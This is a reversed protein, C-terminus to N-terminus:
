IKYRLLAGVGGLAELQKGADHVTSIVVVKGGSNESNTLLKEIQENKGRIMKDIILLTEVAGVEIANETESLGYVVLGDKAIEELIKEVLETEYTVRSDNVLRKIVGRKIAEQVGVMGAQGTGEQIINDFNALNKDKCFKVFEDKTFGPGIVVLPTNEQRVQNLQLLINNFFDKKSDASSKGGSRGTKGDAYQKGTGSHEITAQNRVGYQYVLAIVANDDEIALITVQPQKAASVANDLQEKQHARWVLPKEIEIQNGPLYNLTHYTKLGLEEPGKVITGHIRLRNSFEHFEVDTVEIALWIRKKPSKEARLKDDIKDMRRYTVGSVTDGKEVLNYLHWLDDLNDIQLKYARGKLGKGLIRL